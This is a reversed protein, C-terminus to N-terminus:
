NDAELPEGKGEDILPILGKAIQRKWESTDQDYTELHEQMGRHTFTIETKDGKEEFEFILDTDKWEGQEDEHGTPDVHWVLREGPECETVRLHSYHEPIDVEFTEGEDGAKATISKAWWQSPHAVAAFAKDM